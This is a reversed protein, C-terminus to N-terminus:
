HGGFSNGTIHLIIVLLILAIFAVVFAKVWLPTGTIPRRGPQADGKPDPDPSQNTM